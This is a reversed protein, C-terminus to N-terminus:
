KVRNTFTWRVAKPDSAKRKASIKVIAGHALMRQLIRAINHADDLGVHHTGTLPINLGKLMALMGGARKKYFNYYIDKLNIWENFYPKVEIGSDRCQEPIKTKVDWNGCTVFAARALKSPNQPDYLSHSEMWSEFSNLVDTFPIATDHWVRDLGWRGYKGKIYEAQREETMIVPRVFRHFRDVVELTKANVLLVPFELIEVMGELDLVLFFEFPQDKVRKLDTPRVSLSPYVHSFRDTHEKEEMLTCLGQTFYYCMAKQRRGSKGVDANWRNEAELDENVMDFERIAALTEASIEEDREVLSSVAGGDADAGGDGGAGVDADVEGDATVFADGSAGFSRLNSGLHLAGGCARSWMPLACSPSVAVEKRHHMAVQATRKWDAAGSACNRLGPSHFTRMSHAVHNPHKPLIAAGLVLKRLRLAMAELM